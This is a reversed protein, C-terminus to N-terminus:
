WSDFAAASSIRFRLSSSLLTVSPILTCPPRLHASLDMSDDDGFRHGGGVWARFRIREIFHGPSRTVPSPASTIALDGRMDQSMASSSTGTSRYPLLTALRAAPFIIDPGHIILALPKGQDALFMRRELDIQQTASANSNSTTQQSRTVLLVPM